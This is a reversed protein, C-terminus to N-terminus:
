PPWPTYDRAGGGAVSSSGPVVRGLIVVALTGPAPNAWLGGRGGAGPTAIEVVAHAKHRLGSRCRRIEKLVGM